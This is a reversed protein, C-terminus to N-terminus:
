GLPARRTTRPPRHAATPPSPLPTGAAGVILSHFAGAAVSAAPENGGGPVLTMMWRARASPEDPEDPEDTEETEVEVPGPPADHRKPGTEMLLVRGGEMLLLAHVAGCAVSRVRQSLRLRRCDLQEEFDTMLHASGHPDVVLAAHYGAAFLTATRCAGTRLAVRKVLCAVGEGSRREPLGHMRLGAAVWIRACAPEVAQVVASCLAHSCQTLAGLCGADLGVLISQLTDASLKVLLPGLSDVLLPGLSDTSTVPPPTSAWRPPPAVPSDNLDFLAFADLM